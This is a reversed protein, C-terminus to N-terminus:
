LRPKGVRGTPLLEHRIRDLLRQCDACFNHGALAEASCGPAHCGTEADSRRCRTHLCMAGVDFGTSAFGSHRQM